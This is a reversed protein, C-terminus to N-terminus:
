DFYTYKYGSWAIGSWLTWRHSVTVGMRIPCKCSHIAANTTSVPILLLGLHGSSHSHILTTLQIVAGWHYACRGPYCDSVQIGRIHSNLRGSGYSRKKKWGSFSRQTPFTIGQSHSLIDSQSTTKPKLPWEIFRQTPEDSVDVDKVLFLTVSLSAWFSHVMESLGIVYQLRGVANWLFSPVRRLSAWGLSGPCTHEGVSFLHSYIELMVDQYLRRQAPDLHQWEERSFHITVDEFSVPGQLLM